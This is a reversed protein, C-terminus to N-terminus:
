PKESPAHGAAKFAAVECSAITRELDIDELWHCDACEEYRRVGGSPCAVL